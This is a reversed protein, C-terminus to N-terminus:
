SHTSQTSNSHTNELVARGKEGLDELRHKLEDAEGSLRSRLATGSSPALLLAAGAGILAGIAILGAAPLVQGSVTPRRALGIRGLADDVDVMKAAQRAGLVSGVLLASRLLLSM